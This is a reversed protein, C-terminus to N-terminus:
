HEKMMESIKPGTNASCFSFSIFLSLITLVISAFVGINDDQWIFRILFLGNIIGLIIFTKSAFKRNPSVESIYESVRTITMSILALGVTGSIIAIFIQNIIGVSVFEKMFYFLVCDTLLVLLCTIVIFMPYRLIHKDFWKGKIIVAKEHLIKQKTIETNNLGFSEEINRRLSELDEFTELYLQKWNSEGLKAGEWAMAFSKFHGSFDNLNVNHTRMIEEIFEKFTPKVGDRKEMRNAHSKTENIMANMKELDFTGDKKPLM